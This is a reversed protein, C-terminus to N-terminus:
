KFDNFGLFEILQRNLLFIQRCVLIAFYIKLTQKSKEFFDEILAVLFM